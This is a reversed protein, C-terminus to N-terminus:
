YCSTLKPSLAVSLTPYASLILLCIFVKYHKIKDVKNVSKIRCHCILPMCFM